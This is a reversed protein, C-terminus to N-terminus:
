TNTRVGDRPVTFLEEENTILFKWRQTREKYSISSEYADLRMEDLENIQLFRNVRAITLDMNCNKIDWYAKYELEILLYCAKGYIIRFPITGLPTKFATQFAWLADDLKYSWDKKNNRITKELIRKIARNTNEVQGNTMIDELHDTTVNDFSKHQRMEPSAGEYSKTLVSDFAFVVALLEKETTTYTEQAKNMIKSWTIKILEHFIAIMCHQITAPANCLRFHMQKYTFTGYPCTFTIIEWPSDSIPYILRADLLRIVEKNVVEKINPNVRRQPQVSTKFEDQHEPLEKPELKSPEISSPKLQNKLAKWELPEVPNTKPYFFVVHVENSDDEEEVKTWKKGVHVDIVARTTALLPRGLIILVLEDEDMELVVFDVPFIFKSVKVFLNKCVGIPYKISRVAMKAGKPMYIMAELFPLNIHIQKFISFLQEDEDDKKQKKMISPYPLNSSKSPQYFISPWPAPEENHIISPKADELGEKKTEGETHNAPTPKSPTLFLPDQTSVRSRTTIAFTPAEPKPTESKGIASLIQFFQEHMEKRHHDLM